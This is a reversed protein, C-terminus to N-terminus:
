TNLSDVKLSVWESMNVQAIIRIDVELDTLVMEM